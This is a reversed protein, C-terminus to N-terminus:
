RKKKNGNGKKLASTKPKSAKRTTQMPILGQKQKDRGVRGGTKTARNDYEFYIQNTRAIRYLTERALSPMGAMDAIGHPHSDLNALIFRGKSYAAKFANWTQVKVEHYNYFTGDRFVVTLIQRSKDYGAAVTRPRKYNMTSTPIISLPAPGDSYDRPDEAYNTGAPGKSLDYPNYYFGAQENDEIDEYDDDNIPIADFNDNFIKSAEFYESGLAVPLAEFPNVGPEVLKTMGITAKGPVNYATARPDLLNAVEDASPKVTRNVRGGNGANSARAM